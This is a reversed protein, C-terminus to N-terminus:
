SVAYIEAEYDGDELLDIAEDTYELESLIDRLTPDDVFKQANAGTLTATWSRDRTGKHKPGDQHAKVTVTIKNDRLQRGIPPLKQGLSAYEQKGRPSAAQNERGSQFRRAINARSMPEGNKGVVIGQLDSVIRTKWEYIPGKKTEKVGKYTDRYYEIIDSKSTMYVPDTKANIAAKFLDERNAM